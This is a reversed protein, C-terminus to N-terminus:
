PLLQSSKPIQLIFFELSHKDKLIRSCSHHLIIFLLTMMLHVRYVYTFPKLKLHHILFLNQFSNSSLISSSICIM